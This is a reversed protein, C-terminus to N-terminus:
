GWTGQWFDLVATWDVLRHNGLLSNVVRAEYLLVVRCMTIFQGWYSHDTEFDSIRDKHRGSHVVIYSELSNANVTHIAEM